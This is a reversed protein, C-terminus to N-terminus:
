SRADLPLGPAVNCDVKVAQGPAVNDREQENVSARIEMRSVDFIDLIPRGPNTTDGARYQPLVMGSFFFGGAADQNPRVSVVGSIPAKIVLSEINQRARDALMNSRARKEQLVALGAKAMEARTKV